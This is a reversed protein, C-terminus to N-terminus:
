TSKKKWRCISTLLMQYISYFIEYNHRKLFTNVCTVKDHEETRQYCCEMKHAGLTGAVGAHPPTHWPPVVGECRVWPQRHWEWDGTHVWDAGQSYSEKATTVTMKELRSVTRNVENHM